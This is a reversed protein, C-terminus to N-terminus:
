PKIMQKINKQLVKRKRGKGRMGYEMVGECPKALLLYSFVM